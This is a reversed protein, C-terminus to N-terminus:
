IAKFAIISRVGSREQRIIYPNYNIVRCEIIVHSVEVRERSSESPCIM